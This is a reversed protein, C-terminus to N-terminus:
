AEAIEEINRHRSTDFTSNPQQFKAGFFVMRLGIAVFLVIQLYIYIRSSEVTGIVAEGHLWLPRMCALIVIIPSELVDNFLPDLSKVHKGWVTVRVDNRGDTIRFHIIMQDGIKSPIVQALEIDEFVGIIYSLSQSDYLVQLFILLIALKTDKANVIMDGIDFFDFKHYDITTDYGLLPKIVTESNFTIYIRSSVSRHKRTDKKTLFDSIEYVKGENIVEQFIDWVNSAVTSQVYFNEANLLILNYRYLSDDDSTNSPWMRTVRVKIKWDTHFENLTRLKDFM